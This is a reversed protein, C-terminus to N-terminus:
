PGDGGDAQSQALPPCLASVTETAQQTMKQLRQTEDEWGEGPNALPPLVRHEDQKPSPQPVQKEPPWSWEWKRQWPQQQEPAGVDAATAPAATTQVPSQTSPPYKEPPLRHRICHKVEYGHCAKHKTWLAVAGAGFLFWLLRSGGRHHHHRHYWHHMPHDHYFKYPDFVM